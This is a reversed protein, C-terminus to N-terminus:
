WLSPSRSLTLSLSLSFCCCTFCGCGSVLPVLQEVFPPWMSLTLLSPPPFPSPSPNCPARANNLRFHFAMALRLSRSRAAYNSCSCRWCCSCEELGLELEPASEVQLQHSTYLVIHKGRLRRCDFATSALCCVHRTRSLLRSNVYVFCLTSLFLLSILFCQM